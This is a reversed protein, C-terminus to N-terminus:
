DSRRAFKNYPCPVIPSPKGSDLETRRSCHQADRLLMLNIQQKDTKASVVQLHAHNVYFKQQVYIFTHRSISVDCGYHTMSMMYMYAQLASRCKSPTDALVTSVSSWLLGVFSFCKIRKQSYEYLHKRYCVFRTLPHTSPTRQPHANFPHTLPTRQPSADLPHTTSISINQFCEKHNTKTNQKRIKTM